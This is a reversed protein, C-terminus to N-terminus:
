SEKRAKALYNQYQINDIFIANIGTFAYEIYNKSQMFDLIEQNQIGVTLQQSYPIMEIIFFLPRYKEFNMSELIQLELGEIDLNLIVPANDHLYDHMLDNVSITEVPITKELKANPNQELIDSIDGIQSLGDLNLIHFDLLEGTKASVAKNLIRDGSRHVELSPILKPNAELLVGRAGHQYFFYTNSMAIPHNAGLDLYVCDQVPIGMMAIAYFIIADEGSQSYTKKNFIHLNQPFHEQITKEALHLRAALELTTVDDSKMRKETEARYHELCDLRKESRETREDHAANSDQLNKRLLSLEEHLASIEAQQQQCLTRAHEEKHYIDRLFFRLIKTYLRM